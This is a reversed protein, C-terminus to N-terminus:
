EPCLRGSAGFRKADQGKNVAEPSADRGSVEKARQRPMNRGAICRVCMGAPKGSLRQTIWLPRTRGCARSVQSGRRDSRRTQRAALCRNGGPFMQVAAVGESEGTGASPRPLAREVGARRCLAGDLRATARRQKGRQMRVRCWGTHPLRGRWQRAAAIASLGWADRGTVTGTYKCRRRIEGTQFVRVARSCARLGACPVACRCGRRLSSVKGLEENM